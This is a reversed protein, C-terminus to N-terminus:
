RCVSCTGGGRCHACYKCNKCARCSGGRCTACEAEPTHSIVPPAVIALLAVITSLLLTLKMM